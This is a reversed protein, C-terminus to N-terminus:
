PPLYLCRLLPCSPDWTSPSAIVRMKNANVNFFTKWPSPIRTASGPLTWISKEEVRVASVCILEQNRTTGDVGDEYHCCGVYQWWHWKWLGKTHTVDPSRSNQGWKSSFFSVWTNHWRFQCKFQPSSFVWIHNIKAGPWRNKYSKKKHLWSFLFLTKM